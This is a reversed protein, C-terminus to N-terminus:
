LCLLSFGHLFFLLNDVVSWWLLINAFGILVDKSHAVDFGSEVVSENVNSIERSSFGVRADGSTHLDLGISLLGRWISTLLSQM